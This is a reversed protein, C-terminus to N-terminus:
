QVPVRDQDVRYDTVFMGTGLNCPLKKGLHVTFTALASIPVPLQPENPLVDYFQYSVQFRQDGHRGVGVPIPDSTAKAVRYGKKKALMQQPAAKSDYWSAFRDQEDRLSLCAVANFATDADAESWSERMKVYDQLVRNKVTKPQEVREINQLVYCLGTASDCEILWGTPGKLYLGAAGTTAIAAAAFGMLAGIRWWRRGSVADALKDHRWTEGEKAYSAFTEPTVISGEM